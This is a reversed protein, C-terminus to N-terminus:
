AVFACRGWLARFFGRNRCPWGRGCSGHRVDMRDSVMLQQYKLTLTKDAAVTVKEADRVAGPGGKWKAMLLADIKAKESETMRQNCVLVEGLRQGGYLNGRDEAFADCLCVGNARGNALLFTM